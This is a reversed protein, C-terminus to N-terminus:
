PQVWRAGETDFVAREHGHAQLALWDIRQVQAELVGFHARQAAPGPASPPATEPPPTLAQGPALPSLYDQAARSHQLRAWRSSVALGDAHLTLAVKLRLQWGLAASWMVVTGLPQAQIQAVKGARADTFFVLTQRAADTERLIVTRADAGEAHVTALVATRWAHERSAAAQALEDWILARLAPLERRATM